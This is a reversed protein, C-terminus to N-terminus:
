IVGLGALLFAWTEPEPVPSVNLQVHDFDVEIAPAEPTGPLNLNILRIGLAQGLLPHAAATSFNVTTTEFYGEAISTGLSNDDAALVNGGALLEVRYGPFGALNFFAVSPSGALGTGSAINGVGVTLSYASNAQLTSSLTQQLGVPGLGAVGEIYLLAANNGHPVPELFFPTGAPDLVGVSRTNNNLLGNPDYPTWGALTVPNPYLQFTGAPILDAEFSPNAIDLSAASAGTVASLLLAGAVAARANIRM